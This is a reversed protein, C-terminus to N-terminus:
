LCRVCEVTSECRVCSSTSSPFFLHCMRPNHSTWLSPSSVKVSSEPWRIYKRSPSWCDWPPTLNRTFLARTSLKTSIELTDFLTAYRMMLSVSLYLRLTTCTYAERCMWIIFHLFYEIVNRLCEVESGFCGIVNNHPIEVNFHSYLIAAFRYYSGM